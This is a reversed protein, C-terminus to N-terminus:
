MLLVVNKGERHAEKVMEMHHLTALERELEPLKLGVRGCLVELEVGDAKKLEALIDNQKDSLAATTNGGAGLSSKANYIAWPDCAKPPSVADMYCDECLVSGGHRFEEDAKLLQKDCKECKM